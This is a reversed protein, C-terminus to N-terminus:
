EVEGTITIQSSIFTDVTGDTHTVEVDYNYVGYALSSTEEATVTFTLSSNPITKSVKLSYGAEGKYGKAMAFRFVDGEEPEYAEGAMMPEVTLTMSDGKTLTIKNDNTITLM